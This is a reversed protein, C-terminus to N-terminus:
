QTVQNLPQSNSPRNNTDGSYSATVVRTGTVTLTRSYVARGNSLPVTAVSTGGISFTVTGTPTGTNQPTVIATFTVSTNVPAPNLSSTLTILTGQPSLPSVVENLAPSTSGGNVSDGTYVATLSDTGVPLAATTLHAAGSSDLQASGLSVVGNQFMVSGTPLASGSGTVNAILVVPQGVSAPNPSSGLTTSTEMCQTTDPYGEVTALVYASWQTNTIALKDNDASTYPLFSTSINGSLQSNVHSFMVPSSCKPDFQTLDILKIAPAFVTKYQISQQALSFVISWQTDSQKLASLASFAYSIEDQAPTYESSLVGAKAFRSLSDLGPLALVQSATDTTLLQQLNAVSKQYGSNALAPYPLSAGQHIVLKQFIYEFTACNGGGDCVFYHQANAFTGGIRVSQANAIAEATTASTDLIYQAWQL